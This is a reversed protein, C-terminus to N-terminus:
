IACEFINWSYDTNMEIKMNQGLIHQLRAYEDRDSDRMTTGLCLFVEYNSKMIKM